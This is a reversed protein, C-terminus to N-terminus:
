GEGATIRTSRGSGSPLRQCRASSKSSSASWIGASPVAAHNACGDVSAHRRVLLGLFVAESGLHSLQARQCNRLAVRDQLAGLKEVVAVGTDLHIPRREGPKPVRNPRADEIDNEDM